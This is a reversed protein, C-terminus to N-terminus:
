NGHGPCSQITPNAVPPLHRLYALLDAAQQDSLRFRQMLSCLRTGQPDVGDRFARVVQPDTWTGIGEPAPTINPNFGSGAYDAGHCLTCSNRAALAEGRSADGAPLREDDLAVGAGPADGASCGVLLLALGLTTSVVPARRTM